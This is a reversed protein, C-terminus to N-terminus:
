NIKKFAVNNFKINMESFVPKGILFSYIEDAKKEPSIDKFNNPYLIKAIYWADALISGFNKTYWNYPLVAYINGNKVAKLEKYVPDNKIEYIANAKSPSQITSVDVFIIDPNCKILSEKSINAHTTKMNEDSNKFIINQTNVMKFPPYLPETSQLGHPGRYAIGGVYCSKNNKLDKTRNHLEKMQNEFFNIVELARDEKSLIKGMLTLAKFLDEKNNGLDGYNLAIVPIGTKDQLKQPDYGSRPYTKFIIDPQKKLNLILEPNDMGRFEGFLPLKTLQPNALAYPRSEFRNGKREISDVGVILDLSQLYTMLRLCGPGSCIVNEINKPISVKRGTADTIEITNIEHSKSKGCQFLLPLLLILIFYRKM